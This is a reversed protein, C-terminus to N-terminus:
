GAAGPVPVAASRGRLPAELSLEFGEPPFRTEVQAELQATLVRKLLRSGFGLKKPESVLPGGREVWSLRLLPGGGAEGPQDLAWTVAVQGGSRQM